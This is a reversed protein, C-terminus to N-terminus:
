PGSRGRTCAEIPGPTAGFVLAFDAPEAAPRAGLFTPAGNTGSVCVDGIRVPFRGRLEAEAPATRSAIGTAATAARGGFAGVAAALEKKKAIDPQGAALHLDTIRLSDDRVQVVGALSVATPVRKTGALTLEVTAGGGNPRVSVSQVTMDSVKGGCGPKAACPQFGALVSQIGEAVEKGPVNVEIPLELSPLPARGTGSALANRLSSVRVTARSRQEVSDRAGATAARATVSAAVSYRGGRTLAATFTSATQTTAVKQGASDTVSLAWEGADLGSTEILLQDRDSAGGGLDIWAQGRAMTAAEADSRNITTCSLTAKTRWYGRRVTSTASLSFGATRAQRNVDPTM